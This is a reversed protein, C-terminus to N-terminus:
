AFLAWAYLDLQITHLKHSYKWTLVMVVFDVGMPTSLLIVM